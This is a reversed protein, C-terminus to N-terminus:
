MCVYMYMCMCVYMDMYQGFIPRVYVLSEKKEGHVTNNCPM